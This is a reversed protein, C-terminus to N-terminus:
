QARVCSISGINNNGYIKTINKNKSAENQNNKDHQNDVTPVALPIYLYCINNRAKDYWRQIITDQHPGGFQAELVYSEINKLTSKSNIDGSIAKFPFILILCVILFSIKKLEGGLFSMIIM